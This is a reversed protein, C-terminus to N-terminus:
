ASPCPRSSSAVARGGAADGHARDREGGPVAHQRPRHTGGHHGRVLLRRPPRRLHPRPQAARPHDRLGHPRRRHTEERRSLRRRRLRREGRGRHREGRGNGAPARRRPPHGGGRVDRLRHGGEHRRHRTRLSPRGQHRGGFPDVTWGEGAPVVDFHGNLHVVPGGGEGKRVGMVNVRPHAATHEPRGEAALYEVEYGFSRLRDGILRACDEYVDGPPNVTPIRVMEATFEATEAALADVEALVRDRLSTM